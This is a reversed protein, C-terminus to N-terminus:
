QVLSHAKLDDIIEQTDSWEDVAIMGGGGEHAVSGLNQQAFINAWIGIISTSMGKRKSRVVSKLILAQDVTSFAGDTIVFLQNNGGKIKNKQLIKYAAMFGDAGNTKGSAKLQQVTQIVIEKNAGSTTALAIEARDAYVMLTIQDQPRLVKSLEIISAKMLELKEEKAMSSSVDLLFVINNPVCAAPLLSPDTTEPLQVSDTLQIETLPPKSSEDAILAIRLYNKRHNIYSERIDPRYGKASTKIYYYQIPLDHAVKGDANTQLQLASGDMPQFQIKAREIPQGTASDIVEAVFMFQPCCEASQRSFDPCALHDEPNLYRVDAYVPVILPETMSAFYLAIKEDYVAKERPKFQVRIVMSSDPAVSKASLLISYEHSFTHRLLFDQKKGTNKVVIDRVWVTQQSTTGFDLRNPSLVVQGWSPIASCVILALIGFIYNKYKKWHM